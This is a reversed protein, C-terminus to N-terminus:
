ARLHRRDSEGVLSEKKGVKMGGERGGERGVRGVKCVYDRESIVGIVKGSSDTVALAGINYAAFSLSPLLSPPLFPLTLHSLSL